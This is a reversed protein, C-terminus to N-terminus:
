AYTDGGTVLVIPIINPKPINDTQHHGSAMEICLHSRQLWLLLNRHNNRHNGATLRNYSRTYTDAM